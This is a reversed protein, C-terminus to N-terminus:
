RFPIKHTSYAFSVIKGNTLVHNKKTKCHFQFCLRHGWRCHCRNLCGGTRGQMLSSILTLILKGEFKQAFRDEERWTYTTVNKEEADSSRM